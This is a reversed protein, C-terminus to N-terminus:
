SCGRPPESTVVKGWKLGGTGVHGGAGGGKPGDHRRATDGQAVARTQGRGHGSSGHRRPQLSGHRRKFSEFYARVSPDRDIAIYRGHSNLDTALLKAHGGAGFTCDVVTEGPQVALLRRVEDALVPVHDSTRQQLVSPLM